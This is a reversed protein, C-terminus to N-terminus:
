TTTRIRDLEWLADHFITVVDAIEERLELPEDEVLEELANCVHEVRKQLQGISWSLNQNVVM